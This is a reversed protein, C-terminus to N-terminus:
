GDKEKEDKEWDPNPQKIGPMHAFIEAFWRNTKKVSVDRISKLAIPYLKSNENRIESCYPCYRAKTGTMSLAQMPHILKRCISKRCEWRFVGEVNAANDDTLEVVFWQRGYEVKVWEKAERFSWGERVKARIPGAKCHLWKRQQESIENDPDYATVEVQAIRHKAAEAYIGDKGQWNGSAKKVGEIDVQKTLFTVM